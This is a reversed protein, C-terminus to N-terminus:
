ASHINQHPNFQHSYTAGNVASIENKKRLNIANNGIGLIYSTINKQERKSMPKTARMSKQIISDKEFTKSMTLAYAFHQVSINSDLKIIQNHILTNIQYYLKNKEIKGLLSEVKVDYLNDLIHRKKNQKETALYSNKRKLLNQKKQERSLSQQASNNNKDITNTRLGFYTALNITDAIMNKVKAWVSTQVGQKNVFQKM